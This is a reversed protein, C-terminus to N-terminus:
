SRTKSKRAEEEAQILADALSNKASGPKLPKQQSEHPKWGSMWITKFSARIRGDPDRFREAYIEAARMFLQKSAPCRSREILANQMGMARLDKILDFMTNYRVTVTEVDTVPLAFGARQLLSGADKVDAFPYVRVSAGGTLELEAQLLAERLEGLTGAGAFAALFLGDPRLARAIQILAGPLDNVMHLGMLSVVLDASDPELPLWEEDGVLAQYDDDLFAMDREIRIIRDAKGSAKMVDAALGTHSCLEVAIPFHREVTSLRDGLDEVTRALLFDAGATAKIKARRRFQLMLERDFIKASPM